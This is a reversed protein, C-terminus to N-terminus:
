ECRVKRANVLAAKAENKPVISIFLGGASLICTDSGKRCLMVFQRDQKKAECIWKSEMGNFVYFPRADAIMLTLGLAVIKIKISM